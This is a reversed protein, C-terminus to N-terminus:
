ISEKVFLSYYHKTPNYMYYRQKFAPSLPLRKFGFETMLENLSEETFLKQYYHSDFEEYSVHYELMDYLIHELKVLWELQPNTANHEKIMIIGGTKLVRRIDALLINPYKVHHLVMSCTVLDFYESEYPIHYGDYEQYTFGDIPKIKQSTFMSVDIGFIQNPSLGIKEGFAVTITGNNCGIDLYKTTPKLPFLNPVNDMVNYWIEAFKRARNKSNMVKDTKRKKLSVMLNIISQDSKKNEVFQIVLTKSKPDFDYTFKNLLQSLRIRDIPSRHYILAM